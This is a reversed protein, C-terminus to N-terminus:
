ISLSHRIVRRRPCGPEGVILLIADQIRVIRKLKPPPLSASPRRAVLFLVFPFIPFIRNRSGDAPQDRRCDTGDPDEQQERATAQGHPRQHQRNDGEAERHFAHVRNVGAAPLERLRRTRQVRGSILPDDPEALKISRAPRQGLSGSPGPSGDDRGPDICFVPQVLRGSLRFQTPVFPLDRELQLLDRGQTPTPADRKPALTM